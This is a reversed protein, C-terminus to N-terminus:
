VMKLRTRREKTIADEADRYREPDAIEAGFEDPDAFMKSTNVRYLEGIRKLYKTGPERHGKVWGSVSHESAGLLEALDKNAHFHWALLRRLNAAFPTPPSEAM